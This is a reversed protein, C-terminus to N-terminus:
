RISSSQSNARSVNDLPPPGSKSTTRPIERSAATRGRIADDDYLPPAIEDVDDDEWRLFTLARRAEEYASVLLTFARQRREAYAATVEPGQERQGVATLLKDAILEAQELEGPQLTTQTAIRPWAERMIAALMFLDFALNRYGNVGRLERLRGGDLLRRQALATADAVIVERISIGGQVLREISERPESSGIFLAHAHATALAYSELKDLRAIDFQPLEAAIRGRLARIEPIAGLVTTVATPVDISVAALDEAPVRGMEAM